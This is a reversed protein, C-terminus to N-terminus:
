VKCVEAIITERREMATRDVRDLVRSYAALGVVGLALFIPVALWPHGYLRSVLVVLAAAGFLVIRVALSALITTRSGRQRRFNGFEIKTPSYVSLLNGVSFDIPVVFFMGALTALTIALSPSQYVLRVMFWILAMELMLVAAYALNKGLVIQRFRVPAVFLIQIGGGDGGFINYVLNALILLSYAVGFPFAFSPARMLFGEAKGQGSPGGMRFILLLFVPMILNFIMPGSRLLYRFEKEFIAAVPGPLGMVNWGPQVRSEKRSARRVAESLDEGRYQAHLRLHLLWLFALGYVSLMGFSFLSAGIHGRLVDAIAGAALAPPLPRQLSSLQQVRQTVQQKHGFREAMPGIFQFSIMVVFFLLGLIERTRRRALWRELWGFIMRVLFINVIAFTLLVLAIWPVLAPRAVTLGVAIGLLWMGPLATAPDLSGYVLRVMFYFRYSLPFRLLHSSDPDQAFATTMLPFLQWCAFVPWLLLALFDFKGRAVFFWAGIGLGIAGGVGGAAFAFAVIIRSVLEVRGRITRLSHLFVLWRIRAIAAFQGRAEPALSLGAM